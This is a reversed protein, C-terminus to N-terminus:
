ACRAIQPSQEHAWEDERGTADQAQDNMCVQGTCRGLRLRRLNRRRRRSLFAIPRIRLEDQTVRGHDVAGARRREARGIDDDGAIADHLDHRHARGAADLFRRIARLEGRASALDIQATVVHHGPEDVHVRVDAAFLLAHGCGIDVLQPHTVADSRDAVRPAAVADLPADAFLLAALAVLNRRRANEGIGPELRLRRQRLRLFPAAPHAVDLRLARDAQLAEAITGVYEFRNEVLELLLAHAASTM